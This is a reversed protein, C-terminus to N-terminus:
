QSVINIFSHISVNSTRHYLAMRTVLRTLRLYIGVVGTPPRCACSTASTATSRVCPVLTPFLVIDDRSGMRLEPIVSFVRITRERYQENVTDGLCALVM